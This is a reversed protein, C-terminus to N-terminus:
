AAAIGPRRASALTTPEVCASGADCTLWAQGDQITCSARLTRRALQALAEAEHPAVLRVELNDHRALADRHQAWWAQARPGGYALVVVHAARACAKRVRREDPLGVEIWLEIAGTPDRRWLDPEDATSLGRCFELGPGAHLAFALVRMMMREETESPHRAITLPYDAYHGRDLDAVQLDVKYITSRLAM